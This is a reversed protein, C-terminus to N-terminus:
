ADDGISQKGECLECNEQVVRGAGRGATELGGRESGNQAPVDERHARLLDAVDHAAEIACIGLESDVHLFVLELNNGCWDLDHLGRCIALLRLCNPAGKLVERWAALNHLRRAREKLGESTNEKM